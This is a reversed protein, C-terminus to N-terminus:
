GAACRRFAEFILTAVDADTGVHARAADVAREAVGASYGSQVLAQKAMARLAADGVVEV